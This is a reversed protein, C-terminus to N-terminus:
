KLDDRRNHKKLIDTIWEAKPLPIDPTIFHQEMVGQISCWFAFSLAMPDGDKITGNEQGHRIIEASFEVQDVSLALQRIKEPIGCRRAQSMLVFMQFVWPQGEAANFLEETTKLFYEMPDNFKIAELRKTSQVGMEVLDKYLAEKSEYYHFLLGVSIGLAEAIDSVKTESFGKSVFLELSKFIIQKQRMEKQEKRTM